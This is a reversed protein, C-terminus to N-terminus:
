DQWIGCWWRQRVAGKSGTTICGESFTRKISNRQLHNFFSVIYSGNDSPIKQWGYAYRSLWRATKMAFSVAWLLFKKQIETKFSATADITCNCGCIGSGCTVERFLEHVPVPGMAEHKMKGYWVLPNEHSRSMSSGHGLKRSVKKTGNSQFKAMTQKPWPGM